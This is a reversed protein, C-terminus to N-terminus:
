LSEGRYYMMNREHSYDVGTGTGDLESRAGTPSTCDAFSPLLVWVVGDCIHRSPLYLCSGRQFRDHLYSLIVPIKCESDRTVEAPLIVLM